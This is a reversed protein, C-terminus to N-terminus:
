IHILVSEIRGFKNYALSCLSGLALSAANQIMDLRVFCKECATGTVFRDEYTLHLEVYQVGDKKATVHRFGVISYM